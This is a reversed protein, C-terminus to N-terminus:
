LERAFTLGWVCAAGGAKLARACAELTAGTTCVDDVLLVRRGDLRGRPEFAGQVSARREELAGSRAQPPGHSVRVAADAAMPLDLTKAEERALLEAQNYGRERLRKPHLPVPVIADVSIGSSKARQALLGGMPPAIARLGRYKLHHVAERVAGEMSFCSLVGELAMPELAGPDPASANGPMYPLELPRATELCLDCLYAGERQCGVCRPTFLLDLVKEGLLGFDSPRLRRM